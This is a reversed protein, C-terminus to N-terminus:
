PPRTSYRTLMSVAQSWLGLVRHCLSLFASLTLVEIEEIRGRHRMGFAVTRSRIALSRGGEYGLASRRLSHAMNV